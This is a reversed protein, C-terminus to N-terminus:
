PQVRGSRRCAHTGTQRLLYNTRWFEKRHPMIRGILAVAVAQNGRGALGLVVQCGGVARGVEFLTGTVNEYPRPDTLHKRVADYEVDLATLIVVPLDTV